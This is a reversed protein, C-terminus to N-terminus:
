YAAHWMALKQCGDKGCIRFNTPDPASDHDPREWEPKPDTWESTPHDGYKKNFDARVAQEQETQERRNSQGQGSM